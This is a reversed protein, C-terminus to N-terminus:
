AAPTQSLYEQEKVITRRIAIIIYGSFIVFIGYVMSGDFTPDPWPYGTTVLSFFNIIMLITGVVMVALNTLAGWRIFNKPSEIWTIYALWSFIMCFAVVSYVTFLAVGWQEYFSQPFAPILIAALILLFLVIKSIPDMAVLREKMTTTTTPENKGKAM